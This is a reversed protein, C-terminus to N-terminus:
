GGRSRQGAASGPPGPGDGVGRGPSAKEDAGHIARRLDLFMCLGLGLGIVIGSARVVWDPTAGPGTPGWPRWAAVYSIWLLTVLNGGVQTRISGRGLPGDALRSMVTVLALLLVIAAHLRRPGAAPGLLEPTFAAGTIGATVLVGGLWWLVQRQSAQRFAALWDSRWHWQAQVAGGVVDLVTGPSLPVQELLAMLEDGYRERWARPYLRILLARM